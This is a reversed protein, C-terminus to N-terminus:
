ILAAVIGAVGAALLGGVENRGVGNAASASTDNSSSNSGSHGAAGGSTSNSSGGGVAAEDEEKLNACTLRTNNSSHIVVSLGGIYSKSDPNLSIYNDDFEGEFSTGTLNFHRGALDGVEKAAPTTATTSGNYPNLHGGTATCNGSEPVPKEHVHFPFPGGSSPLGEIDISVLVTGNSSPEFKITGEIDSKESKEFRAVLPASDASDTSIPADSAIALASLALVAFFKM